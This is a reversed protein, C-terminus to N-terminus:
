PGVKTGENTLEAIPRKGEDNVPDYVGDRKNGTLGEAPTIPELV